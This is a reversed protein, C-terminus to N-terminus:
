GGAPLQAQLDAGQFGTIRAEVLQGAAAGGQLRVSGDIEPAQSWLRGLASQEGGRDVLVQLSRGVHSRQQEAQIDAQIACLERYRERARARPVPDPRGWAPTGEEESYRFVGLREFRYERVFECLREFDRDTEGPFGVIFTTRIAVGPLTARLSEVLRAQREAALGRRMARLVPDSAHQLPVDVYSLLRKASAFTDILERTVGSPYLYMVRLWDLGEVRDLARLLDPLRERGGLDRGWSCTDQSIVVLERVGERVLAQAERVLSDLSRSQFRGRISPIACFACTRDCGEAIKLYASHRGGILLRPDSDAHLYTRGAEVYVGRRKGELAADLVRAIRPYEYTGIFADVEPLERALGEGYRQPLCGTVVLGALRGSKRLDAVELIAEISEERASEIFSCTNIVAVDADELREAIAYGGLALAALMVESDVTNKPCGLSRFHVRAKHPPPQM